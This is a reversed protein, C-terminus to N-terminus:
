IPKIVVSGSAISASLSSTPSGELKNTPLQNEFSGTTKDISTDLVSYKPVALEIRGSLLDIETSNPCVSSKAAFTGSALNITLTEDVQGDFTTTGSSMDLDLSTATVKNLNLKGSALTLYAEDAALDSFTLTGSAADLSFCELGHALSEPIGVDLHTKTPNNFILAPLTIPTSASDIVLAGNDLSIRPPNEFGANNESTFTAVIDSGESDPTTHVDLTGAGWTTVMSTLEDAPLIWSYYNENVTPVAPREVNSHVPVEDTYSREVTHSSTQQSSTGYDICSWLRSLVFVIVVLIIIIKVWSSRARRTEKSKNLVHATSPPISGPMQPAAPNQRTEAFPPPFASRSPSTPASESTSPKPSQYDSPTSADTSNQEAINKADTKPIFSSAAGLPITTTVVEVKVVGDTASESVTTTSNQIDSTPESPEANEEKIISAQSAPSDVPELDKEQIAAGRVLEDLSMEYLDALGILNLTDPSSEGREWKSVAQRSVGLLNALEEQSMAKNRRLTALRQPLADYM